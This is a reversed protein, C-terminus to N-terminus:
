QLTNLVDSNEATGQREQHQTYASVFQLSALSGVCWKLTGPTGGTVACLEGSDGIASSLGDLTQPQGM